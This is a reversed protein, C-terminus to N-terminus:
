VGGQKSICREAEGDVGERWSSFHARGLEEIFYQLTEACQWRWASLEAQGAIGPLLLVNVSWSLYTSVRHGSQTARTVCPLHLGLEAPQSSDPYSFLLIASSGMDKSFGSCVLVSSNESYITYKSIIRKIYVTPKLYINMRTHHAIWGHDGSSFKWILSLNPPSDSHSWLVKIFYIEMSRLLVWWFGACM